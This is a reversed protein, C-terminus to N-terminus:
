KVLENVKKVVEELSVDSKILYEKVGLATAKSRREDDGLNTLIMTPVEKGWHDARLKEVMQLGDMVPMVIDVIIVDPHNKIALNLGAHGDTAELVAFGEQKLKQCLVLLHPKDDEIVEITLKNKM